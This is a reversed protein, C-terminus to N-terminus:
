LYNVVMVWLPPLLTLIKIARSVVCEKAMQQTEDIGFASPVIGSEVLYRADDDDKRSGKNIMWSIWYSNYRLLDHQNLFDICFAPMENAVCCTERNMLHPPLRLTNHTLVIKSVPVAALVDENEVVPTLVDGGYNVIFRAMNVNEALCAGILGCMIAVHCQHAWELRSEVSDRHTRAIDSQYTRTVLDVVQEFHGQYSLRYFVHSRVIPDHFISPEIARLGGTRNAQDEFVLPQYLLQTMYLLAQQKKRIRKAQLNLTSEDVEAIPLAPVPMQFDLVFPEQKSEDTSSESASSAPNHVFAFPSENISPRLPAYRPRIRNLIADIYPDISAGICPDTKQRKSM